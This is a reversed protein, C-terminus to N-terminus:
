RQGDLLEGGAAHPSAMAAIRSRAWDRTLWAYGGTGAGSPLLRSLEELDTRQVLREAQQRVAEGDEMLTDDDLDMEAIHLLTDIRRSRRIGALAAWGPGIVMLALGIMIIWSSVGDPRPTALGAHVRDIFAAENLAVAFGAVGIALPLWVWPNRLGRRGGILLWYFWAGFGVTLASGSVYLVKKLIELM